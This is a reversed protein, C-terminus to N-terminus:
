QEFETDSETLKDAEALAKEYEELATQDANEVINTPGSGSCGIMLLSFLLILIRM